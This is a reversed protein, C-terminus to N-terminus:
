IKSKFDKRTPIVHWIMDRVGLWVRDNILGLNDKSINKEVMIM